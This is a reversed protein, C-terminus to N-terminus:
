WEDGEQYSVPRSICPPSILIDLVTVTNESLHLDRKEDLSYEDSDSFCERKKTKHFKTHHNIYFDDQIYDPNTDHVVKKFQLDSRRKLMEMKRWKAFCTKIRFTHGDDNNKFIKQWFTRLVAQKLIEKQIRDIDDYFREPSAYDEPRPIYFGRKPIKTKLRDFYPRSAFHHCLHFNRDFYHYACTITDHLIKHKECCANYIESRTPDFSSSTIMEGCVMCQDARIRKM